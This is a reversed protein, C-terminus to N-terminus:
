RNCQLSPPGWTRERSNRSIGDGDMNSLWGTVPRQVEQAIRAWRCGANHAMLLLAVSFEM